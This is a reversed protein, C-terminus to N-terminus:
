RRENSDKIKNVEVFSNFDIRNELVTMAATVHIITPIDKIIKHTTFIFNISTYDKEDKKVESRSRVTSIM